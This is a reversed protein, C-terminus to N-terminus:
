CNKRGNETEETSRSGYGYLVNGAWSVVSGVTEVTEFLEARSREEEMRMKQTTIMKRGFYAELVEEFNVPAFKTSQLGKEFETFPFRIADEYFTKGLIRRHSETEEEFYAETYHNRKSKWLFEM